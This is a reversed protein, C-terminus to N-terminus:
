ERHYKSNEFPASLWLVAGRLRIPRNPVSIIRPVRTNREQAWKRPAPLTPRCPTLLHSEVFDNSKSNEASPEQVISIFVLEPVIEVIKTPLHVTLM